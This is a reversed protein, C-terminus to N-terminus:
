LNKIIEKESYGLKVAWKVIENRVFSLNKSKPITTSHGTKPDVIKTHSGEGASININLGIKKLAKILQKSSCPQIGM